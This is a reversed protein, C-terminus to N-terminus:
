GVPIKLLQQARVDQAYTTIGKTVTYLKNQWTFGDVDYKFAVTYGNRALTDIVAAVWSPEIEVTM